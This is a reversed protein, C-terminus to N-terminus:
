LRDTVLDGSKFYPGLFTPAIMNTEYTPELIIVGDGNVVGWKGDKKIGAFGYENVETVEDYICPVVTNDKINVFGWKNGSKSPYIRNNLYVTRDDVKKGDQSLFYSDDATKVQIYNGIKSLEANQVSIIEKGNGNYITVNKGATAILLGTEEIEDIYDYQNEVVREREFTALGYKYDFDITIYLRGTTTEQMSLFKPKEILNGKLDFVYDTDNKSAKVYIGVVMLEDYEAPVLVEGDLTILGYSKNKQVTFCKKKQNHIINLYKYDTLNNKNKYVAYRGNQSAVLYADDSDIESVRYLSEQEVKVIEQENKDIYGYRMGQNTRNGVIYGSNKYTGNRFSGDGKVYDYKTSVLSVGKVNIVGYKGNRKVLIEGYKDELSAMEEYLPDTLKKGSFDLVGYLNNERYRLVTNNYVTNGYADTGEIASVESINSLIREKKDNLVKFGESDKVVFIEMDQNPIQVADYTPEIIVTGDKRIVGYKEQVKLPYYKYEKVTLLVYDRDKEKKNSIFIACIISVIVIVVITCILIILKKNKMPM